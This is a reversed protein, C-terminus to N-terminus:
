AEEPKRAKLSFTFPAAPLEKPPYWWGDPGQELFPLAQYVSFPFEHIFEVRLGAGTLANFVDSLSHTWEYHTKHQLVAQPDAYSGDASFEEPQPRHFYDYHLRLEPAKIEDDFTNAFPHIEAMYFVGGPALMHSIVEGWHLLDPLWALVGYSTFVIDFQEDLLRPTQYVDACVFRADLGTEAALQRALTIARESFDVGTVQAGRRAWSLTDMGFHCQLHLLRKGRVDGLEAIELPRLSTKGAKFGEIDYFESRIHLEAWEDWLKRNASLYPNTTM